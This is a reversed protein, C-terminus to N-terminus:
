HQSLPVTQLGPLGVTAGGLAARPLAPGVDVVPLRKETTL